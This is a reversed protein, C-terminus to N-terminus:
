VYVSVQELDRNIACLEEISYKEIVDRLSESLEVQEVSQDEMSLIWYDFSFCTNLDIWFINNSGLHKNQVSFLFM